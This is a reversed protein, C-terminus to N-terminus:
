HLPISSIHLRLKHLRHLSLNSDPVPFRSLQLDHCLLVDSLELLINAPLKMYRHIESTHFNVSVRLAILPKRPLKCLRVVTPLGAVHVRYDFGKPEWRYHDTTLFQRQGKGDESEM